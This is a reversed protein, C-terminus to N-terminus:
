MKVLTSVSVHPFVVSNGQGRAVPSGPGPDFVLYVTQSYQLQLFDPGQRPHITEIWFTAVMAGADANEQLFFINDVEGFGAFGVGSGAPIAFVALITTQTVTGDTRDLQHTLAHDLAMQPNEIVGQSLHSCNQRFPRHPHHTDYTFDEFRSLTGAAPEVAGLPFPATNVGPFTPPGEITACFGQAVLSHGHPITALRAVTPVPETTFDVGFPNPFNTPPGMAIELGQQAAPVLMTPPVNLWCGPEIHLLGGHDDDSIRQLYHLATVFLDPVLRARDPISSNILDFTLTESTRNLELFVGEPNVQNPRAILNFGRGEWTGPLQSLCGLEDLVADIRPGVRLTRADVQVSEEPRTSM